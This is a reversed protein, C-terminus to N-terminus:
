TSQADSEIRVEICFHLTFCIIDVLGILLM